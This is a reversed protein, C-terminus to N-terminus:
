RDAEVTDGRMFADLKRACGGCLDLDVHVAGVGGGFGVGWRETGRIHMGEGPDRQYKQFVLGCRDCAFEERVHRKAM